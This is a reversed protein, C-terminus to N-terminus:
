LGEPALVRILCGCRLSAFFLMAAAKMAGASLATVSFALALSGARSRSDASLLLSADAPACGAGLEADWIGRGARRGLRRWLAAPAAPPGCARAVPVAARARRGLVSCPLGDGALERLGQRRESDDCRRAQYRCSSRGVGALQCVQRGRGSSTGGRVRGTWCGRRTGMQMKSKRNAVPAGHRAIYRM